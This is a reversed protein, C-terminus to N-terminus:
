APAFVGPGGTQGVFRIEAVATAGDEAYAINAFGRSDIDVMFYDLLDRDSSGCGTGSTCIGGVHMPSPTVKVQKFTPKNSFLNMSQAMYVDWTTGAPVDQPSLGPTTTGYWVVDVRGADGAEV